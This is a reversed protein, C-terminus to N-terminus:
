RGDGNTDVLYYPPGYKPTVKVMYVQGHISFEEIEKGNEHRITVKPELASREANPNPVGPMAAPPVKAPLPPPQALVPASSLALLLIAIRMADGM